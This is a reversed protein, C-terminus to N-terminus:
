FFGHRYVSGASISRAGSFSITYSTLFLLYCIVVFMPNVQHLHSPYHLDVEFAYGTDDQSSINIIDKATWKKFETKPVWQFDSVPLKLTEMSGYLNNASFNYPDYCFSKILYYLIFNGDIYLLHDGSKRPNSNGKAYRQAIFSQGGRIGKTFFREMEPDSYVDLSGLPKSTESESTLKNDSKAQESNQFFMLM